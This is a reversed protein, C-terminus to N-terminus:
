FTMLLAAYWSRRDTQAANQIGPGYSAMLHYNESFDYTAGLGLGTSAKGGRTDTTQHYIETGISLAPLVQRTLVWGALCYDKSSGGNNLACGGGGFTSWAGWDKEAWLPLLFSGHRDGTHASLSPLFVRPFVAVDWGFDDQHLFRYKAALEINGIGAVTGQHRPTEYALPVVATLQLDEAGGYNFDIGTEGDRGDRTATGAGFAYIEFHGTDTPEADDTAYPPGAFAAGSGLLLFLPSFWHAPKMQDNAFADRRELADPFGL